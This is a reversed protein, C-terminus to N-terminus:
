KQGHRRPHMIENGQAEIEEKTFHPRYHSGILPHMLFASVARGPVTLM